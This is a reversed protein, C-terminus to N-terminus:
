LKKTTTCNLVTLEANCDSLIKKEISYDGHRDDTVVVKYM